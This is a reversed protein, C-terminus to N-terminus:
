VNYSIKQDKDIDKEQIRVYLISDYNYLSLLKGDKYYVDVSEDTKEIHEVESSGLRYEDVGYKVSLIKRKTQFRLLEANDIVIKKPM